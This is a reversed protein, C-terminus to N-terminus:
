DETMEQSVAQLLAALTIYCHLCSCRTVLAEM